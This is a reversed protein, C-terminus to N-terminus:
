SLFLPFELKMRCYASARDLFSCRDVSCSTPFEVSCSADRHRKLMEQHWYSVPFGVMNDDLLTKGNTSYLLGASPDGSKSLLVPRPEM